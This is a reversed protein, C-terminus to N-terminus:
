DLLLKFDYGIRENNYIIDMRCYITFNANKIQELISFTISLKKGAVIKEKENLIVRKTFLGETM